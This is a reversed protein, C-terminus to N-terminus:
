TTKGKKQQEMLKKMDYEKERNICHLYYKAMYQNSNTNMEVNIIDSYLYSYKEGTDIDEL